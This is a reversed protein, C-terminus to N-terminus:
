PREGSDQTGGDIVFITQETRPGSLNGWRLAIADGSKEGEGVALFDVEWAM